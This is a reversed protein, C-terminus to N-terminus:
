KVEKLSLSPLNVLRLLAEDDFLEGAGADRLTKEALAGRLEREKRSISALSELTERLSGRLTNIEDTTDTYKQHLTDSLPVKKYMCFSCNLGKDCKEVDASIQVIVLKRRFDSRDEQIEAKM